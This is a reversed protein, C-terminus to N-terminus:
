FPSDDDEITPKDPEEQTKEYTTINGILSQINDEIVEIVRRTNESPTPNRTLSEYLQCLSQIKFALERM